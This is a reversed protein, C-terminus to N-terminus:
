GDGVSNEKYLVTLKPDHKGPFYRKNNGMLLPLYPYKTKMM